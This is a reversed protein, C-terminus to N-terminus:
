RLTIDGYLASATGATNDADTMVAIGTLQSPASGFAARYDADIDREYALWQGLRASGSEVVINHVRDTYANRRSTGVAARGDWLYMLTAHPPSRGYLARILSDLTRQVLSLQEPPHTFTVYVRAIADDTARQTHDSTQLAQEGKWRWRLIRGEVVPASFTFALGSASAAAEARLVVSSGDRVLSYRSPAIGRLLIPEWGGPLAGGPAAGSFPPVVPDAALAAAPVVGQALAIVIWGVGRIM